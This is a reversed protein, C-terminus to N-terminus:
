KMYNNMVSRFGELPMRRQRATMADLIHRMLQSWQQATLGRSDSTQIYPCVPLRSKGFRRALANDCGLAMAYPALDFFVEPNDQCMQQIDKGTLKTFYRRLSLAQGMANRGDETRRGGFSALFGAAVQLSVALLALPFQGIVVGLALWLVSLGAALWLRFRHHLFLGDPWFQIRWSCVLGVLSLISMFVWGYDLMNGMLIGFCTGSLLGAAAMIVRFIKVSNPNKTRFLQPASRKLSVSQVMRQYATTSTDVLERRSFLQNFCKQEFATRENGMDMRKQVLVRSRRDMRLTVYGLQAWSFIMLNLDAGAMTLVTGMQGAGFGEPAVAPYSRIPLINRLFLIWYLLALGACIGILPTVDELAPLEAGTQPFMEETADLYMTLTEHDKITNWSRGAINGGSISYTLDKEINAQHYGSVFSPNQTVVGPLNISFQLEDIPYQFGALMPLALRLRKHVTETSAETPDTSVTAESALVEVASHVSYGVSFSFDGSMGGLIRSIDVLRAQGTKQTLVAKGNLTVNSANAPVPYVLDKQPTDVHLTVNTTVDCNGDNSVTAFVNVTYARTSDTEAASAGVCLGLLLILCSLLALFRTM